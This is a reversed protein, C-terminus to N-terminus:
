EHGVYPKARTRKLQHGITSEIPPLVSTSLKLRLQCRLCREAARRAAKTNLGKEVEKFTSKRERLAVTPMKERKIKAFDEKPGIYPDSDVVPILSSDIIGDGGLYKDVSQAAQRGMAIAEIISNPGSVADGAAFVGKKSTELTLPNVTLSNGKGTSLGFEKPIDPKQGIAFIVTDFKEIEETGEIPIPRRRGTEDVGGLECEYSELIICGEGSCIRKPSRLCTIRIGEEVAYQIDETNAPAEELTRRYVVEVNEAGLRIATRAADIAANGGGIVAVNRGIRPPHGSSVERLFAVATTISELDEGEVCTTMGLHAGVAVVIADFGQEFLSELSEIKTKSKAKIGLDLIENIEKDLIEQPLRFSPIGIRMMGGLKPLAEHVTVDHGKIKLYFAATLGAPGSGIIAVSKGTPKSLNIGRRWVQKTDHDAAFRKIWCINVPEGENVNERRCVDECPRFCVRGLIGPFPVKERIVALAESYKGKAVLECYRPIDIHAPCADVCPLLITERQDWTLWKKGKDQLAGTPCVEVCATCFVCGSDALPQDFATSIQTEKGRNTLSWVDVGRVESCVRVCRACLICKSRDIEFLPNRRDVTKRESSRPFRSEAVGLYAALIQLQCNYNADCLLCEASHSSIMLEIAFRRIKDIMYNKTNIVMGDEIPTTCATPFGRMNEIQVICLRCGAYPSLDPHSCLHPIYIGADLAAELVTTGKKATIKKGDIIISVTESM